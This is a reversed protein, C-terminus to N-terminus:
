EEHPKALLNFRAAPAYGMAEYLGRGADSAHLTTRTLGSARAGQEISHRMVTEALGKRHTDPITAVFCVYNTGDVPVTASCTVPRGDVYGVYAHTDERWIHLNCVCEMTGDPLGYAANNIEALHRATIDDDVRRIEIEAPPRRPPKLVDTAMGTMPVAPALGFEAAVEVWGEPVWDLCLGFMWPHECRSTHREAVALRRRLEDLDSLPGDHASINLFPLPVNGLTSAVGESREFTGTPLRETFLKWADILLDVM